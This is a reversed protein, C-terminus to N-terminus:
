VKVLCASNVTTATVGFHRLVRRTTEIGAFALCRSESMYSGQFLHYRERSGVLQVLWLTFLLRGSITDVRAGPLGRDQLALHGSRPQTVLTLSYVRPVATAGVRWPQPLCRSIVLMVNICLAWLVVLDEYSMQHWFHTKRAKLEAYKCQTLWRYITLTIATSLQWFTAIRLSLSM